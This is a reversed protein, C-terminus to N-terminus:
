DMVCRVSLGYDFDTAYRNVGTEDFHLQRIWATTGATSTWHNSNTYKYFFNGGSGRGGGPLCSFGSSNTAGTNPSAWQVTGTEKLNGGADTGRWGVGNWEPDSYGFVSDVEGELQKWEDDSPIHWGSPCIGQSSEINVYQMMENWQYLGGRIECEAQDNDFCYKEFVANDAQEADGEIMDGINLNEAMWCQTGIQVTRYSQADRPDFLAYGCEFPLQTGAGSNQELYENKDINDAQIDLNFDSSLYGSQGAENVWIVSIDSQNIAGDSNADGAFMGWIGTSIEKQNNNFAQGPGSTFDYSYVGGSQVLSFASLVPLHNRHYVLALLSHEVTLNNIQPNGSGDLARISGDNMLFAAQQSLMTSPVASGANPADRLEVLVWDVVGAPIETVSETGDYNWPAANYPQTLPIM